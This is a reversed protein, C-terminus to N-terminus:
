FYNLIYKLKCRHFKRGNCAKQFIRHSCKPPKRHNNSTRHKTSQTHHEVHLLAFASCILRNCPCHSQLQIPSKGSMRPNRSLAQSKTSISASVTAPPHRASQVVDGLTLLDTRFSASEGALNYKCNPCLYPRQKKEFKFFRKLDAPDLRESVLGFEWVLRADAYETSHLQSMPSNILHARRARTWKPEPGLQSNITLIDILLEAVHISVRTAMGHLVENRRKRFKEFQRVFEESLPPSVVSNHVKILDEAAITHFESFHTHKTIAVKPWDSPRQAILLYPSVKTIRGKLLYECGSQAIAGASALKIRAANWFAVTEPEGLKGTFFQSDDFNCLLDTATDWAQNLLSLGISELDEPTPIDIIM